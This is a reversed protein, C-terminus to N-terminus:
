GMKLGHGALLGEDNELFMGLGLGEELVGQRDLGGHAM